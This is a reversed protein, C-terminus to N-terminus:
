SLFFFFFFFFVLFYGDCSSCDFVGAYMFLFGDGYDSAVSAEGQSYLPSVPYM